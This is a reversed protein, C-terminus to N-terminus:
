FSDEDGFPNLLTAFPKFEYHADITGVSIHHVGDVGLPEGESNYTVARQDIFCTVDNADLGKVREVARLVGRMIWDIKMPQIISGSPTAPKEIDFPFSNPNKRGNQDLVFVGFYGSMALWIVEEEPLNEGSLTVDNDRGDEDIEVRKIHEYVLKLEEDITEGEVILLDKDVVGNSTIQEAYQSLFGRELGLQSLVSHLRESKAATALSMCNEEGDGSGSVLVYVDSEASEILYDYKM